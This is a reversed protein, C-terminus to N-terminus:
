NLIQNKLKKYDKLTRAKIITQKQKHYTIGMILGIVGYTLSDYKTMYTGSFFSKLFIVFFAGLLPYYNKQNYIKVRKRFNFLSILIGTFIIIGFVGHDYLLQFWDSHAYSIGNDFSFFGRGFIKNILPFNLWDDIINMYNISRGSGTTNEERLFRYLIIESYKSLVIVLSSIVFTIITIVKIKNLSSKSKKINQILYFISLFISTLIAGRKLSFIISIFTIIFLIYNIKKPKLTSICVMTALLHYSVNDALNMLEGYEEQRQFFGKYLDYVSVTVMIISFKQLNKEISIGRKSINYFIYFPLLTYLVKIYDNINQPNFFAYFTLVLIFLTFLSNYTLYYKDAQVIFRIFAYIGVLVGFSQTIVTYIRLSSDEPIFVDQIATLIVILLFFSFINKSM